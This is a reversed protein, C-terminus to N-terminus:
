RGAVQEALVQQLPPRQLHHRTVSQYAAGVAVVAADDGPLAIISAVDPQMWVEFGSSDEPMDLLAALGDLGAETRSPKLLVDIGQQTFYRRVQQLLLARLRQAKVYGTAPAVQGLQMLPFWEEQAPADIFRQQVAGGPWHSDDTIFGELWLGEFSVAAEVQLLVSLVNSVMLSNGPPALPGRFCGRPNLSRLVDVLTAPTDALNGSNTYRRRHTQLRVGGSDSGSLCHLGLDRNRNFVAASRTLRDRYVQLLRQPTTAGTRLM